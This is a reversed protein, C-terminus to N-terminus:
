IEKLSLYDAVTLIIVGKITQHFLHGFHKFDGTLLYDCNAFIAGTLIPSDKEVINVNEPILNLLLPVEMVNIKELLEHFININEKRLRVLNREAEIVAYNSSILSVNKLSWLEKIRTSKYAASFLINADLFVKEM